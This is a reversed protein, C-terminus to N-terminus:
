PGPADRAGDPSTLTRTEVLRAAVMRVKVEEYDAIRVLTGFAARDDFGYREMLMGVAQGILRSSELAQQLNAIKEDRADRETMGLDHRM